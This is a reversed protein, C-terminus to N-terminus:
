WVKEWVQHMRIRLIHKISEQRLAGSSDGSSGQCCACPRYQTLSLSPTLNRNKRRGTPGQEAVGSTVRNGGGEPPQCELAPGKTPLLKDQLLPVIRAPIGPGAASTTVNEQGEPRQVNYTLAIAITRTHTCTPTCAHTLKAVTIRSPYAESESRLLPTPCSSDPEQTPVPSPCWLGQGSSTSM